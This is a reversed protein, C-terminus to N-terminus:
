GGTEIETPNGDPGIIPAVVPLAVDFEGTLREGFDFSLDFSAAVRDGVELVELRGRQVPLRRDGGIRLEVVAVDTVGDCGDSGCDREDIELDEGAVLAGPNEIVLNVTLGDITRVLMCLDEDLGQDPDCDGDVVVPAGRSIAVRAGDITGTARFGEVPSQPQAQQAGDADVCGGLVLLVAASCLLRRM